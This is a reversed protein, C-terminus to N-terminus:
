DIPPPELSDFDKLQQEAKEIDDVLGIREERLRPIVVDKLQDIREQIKESEADDADALKSQEAELEEVRQQILRDHDVLKQRALSAEAVLPERSDEFERRARERERQSESERADNQARVGPLFQELQEVLERASELAGAFNLAKERIADTFSSLRPPIAAMIGRTREPVAKFSLEKALTWHPPRDLKLIRHDWSSTLVWNYASIDPFLEFAPGIGTVRTKSLEDLGSMDQFDFARIDPKLEDYRESWVKNRVSCQHSPLQWAFQSIWLLLGFMLVLPLMGLVLEIM